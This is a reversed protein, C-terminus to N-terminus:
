GLPAIIPAISPYDPTTFCQWCDNIPTKKPSKTLCRRRLKIYHCETQSTQDDRKRERTIFGPFFGRFGVPHYTVATVPCGFLYAWSTTIWLHLGRLSSGALHLRTGSYVGM